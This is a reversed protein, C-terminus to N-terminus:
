LTKKCVEEEYEADYASTSELVVQGNEEITFLGIEYVPTTM